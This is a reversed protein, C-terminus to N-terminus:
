IMLPSLICAAAIDNDLVTLKGSVAPIVQRDNRGIINSHLITDESICITGIWLKSDINLCVIVVIRTLVDIKIVAHEISIGFSAHQDIRSCVINLDAIRYQVTSKDIIRARIYDKRIGRHVPLHIAAPAHDHLIVGDNVIM